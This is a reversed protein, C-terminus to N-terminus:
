RGAVLASAPVEDPVVPSPIARRRSAAWFLLAALYMGAAVLSLSRIGLALSMYELAGGLVAGLLNSALAESGVRAKRFTTAFIVAALVIPIGLYAAAAGYSGVGPALRWRAIPWFYSLVLTLVVLSYMLAIPVRKLRTLVLINAILITALIVTFVLANTQWTSGVLLAYQTVSKTEMLLFGAGLFFFQGDLRRTGRFSRLVLVLSILLIGAFVGLYESPLRRQRIYLHPWDDTAPTAAYPFRILDRDVETKPIERWTSPLSGLSIGETAGAVITRHHNTHVLYVPTRGFVSRVM